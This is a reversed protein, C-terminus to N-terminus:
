QFIFFIVSYLLSLSLSLTRGDALESGWFVVITLIPDPQPWSDSAVDLDITHHHPDLDM